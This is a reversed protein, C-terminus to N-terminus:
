KYKKKRPSVTLYLDRDMEKYLLTRDCEFESTEDEEVDELAFRVYDEYFEDDAPAELSELPLPSVGWSKLMAVHSEEGLLSSEFSGNRSIPFYNEERLPLIQLSESEAMTVDRRGELSSLQLSGINPKPIFRVQELRWEELRGNKGRRKRRERWASSLVTDHRGGLRRGSSVVTEDVTLTSLEERHIHHKRLCERLRQALQSNEETRQDCHTERGGLELTQGSM